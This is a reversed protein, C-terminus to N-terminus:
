ANTQGLPLDTAGDKQFTDAKWCSAIRILFTTLPQPPVVSPGLLRATVEIPLRYMVM